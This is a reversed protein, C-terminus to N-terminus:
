LVKKYYIKSLRRSLYSHTQWRRNQALIPNSNPKYQTQKKTFDKNEPSFNPFNPKNQLFFDIQRVNEVPTSTKLGRKKDFVHSNKCKKATKQMKSWGRCFLLFAGVSSLSWFVSLMSNAPMTNNAHEIRLALKTMSVLWRGSTLSLRGIKFIDVLGNYSITLIKSKM